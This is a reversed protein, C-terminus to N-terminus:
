RSRSVLYKKVEDVVARSIPIEENEITSIAPNGYKYHISSIQDWRIWTSRHVKIGDKKDVLDCMKKLSGYLLHQGATTNIEVYNNRTKMTLLTGRKAFPLLKNIEDHIKKKPAFWGVDHDFINSVVILLEERKAYFLLPAVLSLQLGVGTITSFSAAFVRDPLYIFKASLAVAFIAGLLTAFSIAWAIPWSREAFIYIFRPSLTVVSITVLVVWGFNMVLRLEFPFRTQGTPGIASFTLWLLVLFITSPRSLFIKFVISRIKRVAAKEKSNVFFGIRRLSARTWSLM